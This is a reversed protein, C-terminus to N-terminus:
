SGIVVPPAEASDKKTGHGSYPCAVAAGAFAGISLITLMSLVLKRM